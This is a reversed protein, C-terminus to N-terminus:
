RHEEAWRQLLAVQTRLFLIHTEKISLGPLHNKDTFFDHCVRCLPVCSFDAAKQGVGREGWHHPDSPGSAHCHCCPLPRVFALYSRSRSPKSPKPHPRVARREARDRARAREELEDIVDRKTHVPDPPRLVKLADLAETTDEDIISAIHRRVKAYARQPSPPAPKKTSRRTSLRSREVSCEMGDKTRRIRAWGATHGERLYTAAEWRGLYRVQVAQGETFETTM